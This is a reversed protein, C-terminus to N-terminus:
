KYISNVDESKVLDAHVPNKSLLLYYHITFLYPLKESHRFAIKILLHWDANKLLPVYSGVNGIM